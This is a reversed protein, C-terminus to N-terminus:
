QEYYINVNYTGSAGSKYVIEITRYGPPYINPAEVIFEANPPDNTSSAILNGQSDYLYLDFNSTLFAQSSFEVMSMKLYLNTYNRFFLYSDRTDHVGLTGGIVGREGLPPISKVKPETERGVELIAPAVVRRYVREKLYTVEFTIKLGHDEINEDYFLWYALLRLSGQIETAKAKVYAETENTATQKQDVVTMNVASLAYYNFDVRLKSTGDTPQFRVVVESAWMKTGMGTVNVYTLLNLVDVDGYSNKEYGAVIVVISMMDDSLVNVKDKQFFETYSSPREAKWNVPELTITEKRPPEPIVGILRFTVLLSIPIMISLMTM